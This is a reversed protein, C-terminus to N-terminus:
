LLSRQRYASLMKALDMKISKTLPDPIWGPNSRLFEKVYERLALANTAFKDWDADMWQATRSTARTHSRNNRKSTGLRLDIELLTKFQCELSTWAFSHGKLVCKAIETHLDQDFEMDEFYLIAEGEDYTSIKARSQQSVPRLKRNMGKLTTRCLPCNDNDFLWKEICTAGFVHGCTLEIAQRNDEMVDYLPVCPRKGKKDDKENEDPRENEFEMMCIPCAMDDHALDKVDVRKEFAQYRTKRVEWAAANDVQEHIDQLARQASIPLELEHVLFEVDGDPGAAMFRVVNGNFDTTCSEEVVRDGVVVERWQLHTRYRGTKMDQLVVHMAEESAGYLQAEGFRALSLFVEPLIPGGELGSFCRSIIGHSWEILSEPWWLDEFGALNVAKQFEQVLEESPRNLDILQGREGTLAIDGQMAAESPVDLITHNEQYGMLHELVDNLESMTGEVHNEFPDDGCRANVIDMTDSLLKDTLTQTGTSCATSM